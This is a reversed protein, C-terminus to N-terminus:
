RVLILEPLVGPSISRHPGKRIIFPIYGVTFVIGPILLDCSMHVNFILYFIWIRFLAYALTFFYSM